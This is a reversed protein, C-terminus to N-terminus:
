IHILSLIVWTITDRTKYPLLEEISKITRQELLEANYNAVTINHLNEAYKGTYVLTGPALGTKKASTKNKRKNSLKNM